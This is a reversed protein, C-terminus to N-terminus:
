VIGYSGKLGVWCMHWKRKNRTGDVSGWFQDYCREGWGSMLRMCDYVELKDVVNKREEKWTVGLNGCSKELYDYRGCVTSVLEVVEGVKEIGMNSQLEQQLKTMSERIESKKQEIFSRTCEVSAFSMNCTICCVIALTSVVNNM